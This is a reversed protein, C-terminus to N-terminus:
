SIPELVSSPIIKTRSRSVPFIPIKFTPLISSAPRITASPVARNNKGLIVFCLVQRTIGIRIYYNFFVGWPISCFPITYIHEFSAPLSTAFSSSARLLLLSKLISRLRKAALRFSIFCLLAFRMSLIFSAAWCSSFYIKPLM